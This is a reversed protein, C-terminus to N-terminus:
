PTLEGNERGGKSERPGIGIGSFVGGNQSFGGEGVEVNGPGAPPATGDNNDGGGGDGEVM